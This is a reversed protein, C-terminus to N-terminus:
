GLFALLAEALAAPQEETVWHGCNQLVVGTVNRAVSSYEVEVFGGFSHDGGVTLVPVTVLNQKYKDNDAMDTFIARYYEFGAHMAGPQRYARVYEDIAHAPFAGPVATQDYFWSLYTRERGQTLEEPLDPVLHFSFWWAGGGPAFPQPQEFTAPLPSELVALRAVEPEFLATYYYGVVGGWDHGVLRVQRGGLGLAQILSHVDHAITTKDYGGAPRSSDGLGRLDPAIVRYHRALAPIVTRWEFWTQSWGHLLLLPEGRGALAVNLTVDGLNIRRLEVGRVRAPEAAADEISAEAPGQTALALVAGAGAVGAALASRRSLDM